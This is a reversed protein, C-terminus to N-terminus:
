HRRKQTLYDLFFRVNSSATQKGRSIQAQERSRVDSQEDNTTGPRWSRFINNFIDIILILWTGQLSILWRICVCVCIWVCANIHTHTHIYIYIYIYIHIFNHNLHQHTHTQTHTHIHTHKYVCVCVCVDAVSSCNSVIVLLTHYIEYPFM